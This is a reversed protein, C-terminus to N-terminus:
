LRVGSSLRFGLQNALIIECPNLYKNATTQMALLVEASPTNNIGKAKATNSIVAEQYSIHESINQM